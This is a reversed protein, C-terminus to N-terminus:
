RDPWQKQQRMLQLYAVLDAVDQESLRTFDPMKSNLRFKSVQRIFRPLQEAQWYETVNKPINLEPGLVGGQQNISHCRLCHQKFLAFGHQVQASVPPKPMVRAFRDTFRSLELKVVQYPWSQTATPDQPWVLYFPGPDITKQQSSLPMFGSSEQLAATDAQKTGARDAFALIPQGAAIAKLSIVPAYGDLATLILEDDDNLQRYGAAQLLAWLSVGRYTKQQQYQPDFLTVQQVPTLAALQALTLQQAAQNPHLKLQLQLPSTPQPQTQTQALANNFGVTDALMSVALLFGFLVRQM